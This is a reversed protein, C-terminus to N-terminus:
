YKAIVKIPRDETAAKANKSIGFLGFFVIVMLMCKLEKKAM